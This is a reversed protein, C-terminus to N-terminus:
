ATRGYTLEDILACMRKHHSGPWYIKGCSPCSRFRDYYEATGPPLRDVIDEKDVDALEANCEMCRTFPVMAAILDLRKVIEKLQSRPKTEHVYCGHTIVRHKLLERDRSLVIRKERAGIEAVEADNLTADFYVDFGLMRLSRALAALHADAIFRPTRMPRERVRLLPSIDVSEFQPYVSVRDGNKVLHSFGVSEGNVLILEVETHPVGIAEIAQKVTARRACRYQFAQKRLERPLFDNLEEYFRFEAVANM